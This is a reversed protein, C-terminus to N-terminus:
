GILDKLEIRGSEILENMSLILPLIYERKKFVKINLNDLNNKWCIILDCKTNKEKHHKHNIYNKSEYEFETYLTAFENKTINFLKIRGDPFKTRVYEIKDFRVDDKNLKFTKNRLFSFMTCFLCVLGQEDVPINPFIELLESFHESEIKEGTRDFTRNNQKEDRNKKIIKKLEDEIDKKTQIANSVEILNVIEDVDKSTFIRKKQGRKLSRMIEILQIRKEMNEVDLLPYLHTVLMNETIMEEKITKYLEIYKKSTQISIGFEKETYEKFLYDKKGLDDEYISGLIKGANWADLASNKARKLLPRLESTKKDINSKM